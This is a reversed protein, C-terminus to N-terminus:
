PQAQRNGVPQATHKAMAQFHAGPRALAAHEADTHRQRSFRRRLCLARDYRRNIALRQLASLHDEDVVRDTDQGALVAQESTPAALYPRRAVAQLALMQETLIHM